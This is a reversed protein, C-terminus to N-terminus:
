APAPARPDRARASAARRLLVRVGVARDADAELRELVGDDAVRRADSHSSNPATETSSSIAQVFM